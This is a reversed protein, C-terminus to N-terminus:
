EVGFCFIMPEHRPHDNAEIIVPRYIFPMLFAAVRARLWLMAKKPQKTGSISSTM